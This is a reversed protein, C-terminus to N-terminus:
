SESVRLGNKKRSVVIEEEVLNRIVEKAERRREKLRVM